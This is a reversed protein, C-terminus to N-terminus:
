KIKKAPIGVYKGSHPLEKVVVAGAGIMCDKAICVNNIISSGVGIWTNDGITVSGAVHCGPCVHVFDHIICDHDVSSSTNIICGVGVITGANIVVNAMVVSGNDIQVTDDIVATPHILTAVNYHEKLLQSTIKKRIVNDGIGVIFEYNKYKNIDQFTGVISYLGCKSKSTDDDLFVIKDYGNLKAINAVVKGHGGAGIIVLKKNM